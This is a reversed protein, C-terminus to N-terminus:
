TTVEKSLYVRGEMLRDVTTGVIVEIDYVAGDFQSPTLAATDVGTIALVLNPSTDAKTFDIIKKTTDTSSTVDSPRNANDTTYESDGWAILTGGHSERIQMRVSYGGSGLLILVSDSDKYSIDLGFTAGQEINIDFEGASM